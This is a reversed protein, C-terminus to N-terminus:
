QAKEQAARAADIAEWHWKGCGCFRWGGADSWPIFSMPGSEPVHLEPLEPMATQNNMEIVEM